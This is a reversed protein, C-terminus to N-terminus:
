KKTRIRRKRNATKRITKTNEKIDLNANQKAKKKKTKTINYKAVIAIIIVLLILVMIIIVTFKPEKIINLTKLEEVTLDYTATYSNSVTNIIFTIDGVDENQKFNEKTIDDLKAEDLKLTYSIDTIEDDNKLLLELTDKIVLKSKLNTNYNTYDFSYNEKNDFTRKSFNDFSYNFLKIADTYRADKGDVTGAKFVAIIITKDDKKGLTVLTKGAENTFGTKGGIAYEYFRAHKSESKKLILRNTNYLYRKSNTKNTEPVIYLKTSIIKVFHENKICYNFIKAIDLATTYHNDDSYGHANVFNTGTCGLEKAKNNMLKVFDQINGSVAEALVNAADNGSYILLCHLLEDVTLIEGEKIYATSSDWPIKLATKSAVINQDLKLNELALIATLIKTISAPYVKTNINKDFLITGSGAEMAIAAKSNTSPADSAFVTFCNFLIFTFVWLKYSLKFKM